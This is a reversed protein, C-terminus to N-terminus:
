AGKMQLLYNTLPGDFSTLKPGWLDTSVEFLKSNIYELCLILCFENGFNMLINVFDNPSIYDWFYSLFLYTLYSAMGPISGPSGVIDNNFIFFKCM